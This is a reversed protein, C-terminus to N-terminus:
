NGNKGLIEEDLTSEVGVSQNPDALEGASRRSEIRRRISASIKKLQQAQSEGSHGFFMELVM